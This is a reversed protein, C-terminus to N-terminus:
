AIQTQLGLLQDTHVSLQKNDQGTQAKDTLLQLAAKPEESPGTLKSSCSFRQKCM